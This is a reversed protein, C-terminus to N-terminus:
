LGSQATLIRFDPDPGLTALSIDRIARISGEVDILSLTVSRRAWDIEIQGFHDDRVTHHLRFHNRQPRKGATNLGSATIEYLPYGIGDASAVPLAQIEGYHRDGSILITRGAGDLLRLLQAREYPFNAWKERGHETALVQISSAVIRLDAPERLIESLWLWQSRGLLTSSPDQDAVYHNWRRTLPSRFYRTDLVIVQVRRGPPGFNQSHYIGPRQRRPDTRPVDFFDLFANQAMSKGAFDAGADSQGYDHDDWTALLPVHQRLADFGPKSALARYASRMIHDDATDAYVNDGTLIFLDPRHGMITWWIPQPKDQRACSGFAIRELEIYPSAAVSIGVVLVHASLVSLVAWLRAKIGGFQLGRYSSGTAGPEADM